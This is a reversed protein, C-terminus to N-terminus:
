RYLLAALTDFKIRRALTAADVGAIRVAVTQVITHPTDILLHANARRSPGEGADDSWDGLFLYVTSASDTGAALALSAGPVSITEAAADIPLGRSNVDIDIRAEAGSSAGDFTRYRIGYALAFPMREEGVCALRQPRVETEEVVRWGAPPVPMATRVTKLTEVQFKREALTTPRTGKYCGPSAVGPMATLWVAGAVASVCAGWARRRRLM